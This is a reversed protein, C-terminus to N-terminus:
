EVCVQEVEVEVEVEFSISKEAHYAYTREAVFDMFNIFQFPVLVWNLHCKYYIVSRTRTSWLSLSERLM